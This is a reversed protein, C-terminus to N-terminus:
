TIVPPKTCFLVNESENLGYRERKERPIDEAKDLNVSFGTNQLRSVLDYGYIRVHAKEGFAQERERPDTISWDEYTQQNLNIPVTILAWGGPKLVRYIEQFAKLDEKVEEMVHICILCDFTNAKFSLASVDLYTQINLREKCDVGLYDINKM